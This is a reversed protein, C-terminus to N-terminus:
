QVLEVIIERAPAKIPDKHSSYLGAQSPRVQSWRQNAKNVVVVLGFRPGLRLVDGEEM